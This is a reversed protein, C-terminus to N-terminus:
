AKRGDPVKDDEEEIDRRAAGPDIERDDRNQPNQGENGEFKDMREPHYPQAGEGDGHCPGPRREGKHQNQAARM